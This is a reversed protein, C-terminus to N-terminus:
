IVKGQLELVHLDLQPVGLVVGLEQAPKNRAYFPGRENVCRSLHSCHIRWARQASESESASCLQPVCGQGVLRRFHHVVVEQLFQM